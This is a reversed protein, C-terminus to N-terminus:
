AHFAILAPTLRDAAYRERFEETKRRQRKKLASLFEKDSKRLMRRVIACDHIDGLLDQVDKLQALPGELSTGYLPAFFDLTYRLNKGAIRFKHIEKMSAQKDTADKGLRFYRKVLAPLVRKAAAGAPIAFFNQNREVWRRLSAVLTRAAQERCERFESVPLSSEALALKAHLHLAVDYDRVNGARAMIGKLGRRIRRREGRPFCPKLVVIVRRFRRIAVRLDHVANTDPSQITRFIRASMELYLRDAQKKAFQRTTSAPV